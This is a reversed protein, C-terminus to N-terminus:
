GIEITDINDSFVPSLPFCSSGTFLFRNDPNNTENDWMYALEAFVCGLSWIDVRTDYNSVELIIEPPRYWRAVM